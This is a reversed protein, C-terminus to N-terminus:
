KPRESFHEALERETDVIAYAPPAPGYFVEMDALEQHYSEETPCSVLIEEEATFTLIERTEPNVWIGFNAADLTTAYQVWDKCPRFDYHYRERHPHQTRTIINGRASTEM